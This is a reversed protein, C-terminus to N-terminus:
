DFTNNEYLLIETQDVIFMFLNTFQFKSSFHRKEDFIDVKATLIVYNLPATGFLVLHLTSPPWRM